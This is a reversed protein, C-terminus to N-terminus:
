TTKHVQCSLSFGKPQRMSNTRIPFPLTRMYNPLCSIPIDTSRCSVASKWCTVKPKGTNSSRRRTKRLQTTCNPTWGNSPLITSDPKVSVNRERTYFIQATTYGSLCVPMGAPQKNMRKTTIYNRSHRGNKIHIISIKRGMSFFAPSFPLSPASIRSAERYGNNTM